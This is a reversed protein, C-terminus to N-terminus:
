VVILQNRKMNKRRRKNYMFFSDHIQLQRATATQILKRRLVAFNTKEKFNQVVHLNNYM